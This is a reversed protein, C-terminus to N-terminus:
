DEYFDLLSDFVKGASKGLPCYSSVDLALILERVLKEDFYGSEIMEHVRFIGERCPTCKDCNGYMLFEAISKMKRKVDFNEKRYIKVSALRRISTDMKKSNLFVGGAGGGVQVLFDFDPFNDTKKLIEKITLNEKLKFVGSNEVQGSICYFKDNQFNNNKIEAIAYFTEINHVLTPKNWLGRETPFPPKIKPEARNKEISNIAATEEGAVYRDEKTKIKLSEGETLKLIKREFLNKYEKKLYFFGENIELSEMTVNIGEIAKELNNKLIYKDKFVGPESEAVNCILYKFGNENKASKWKEWVPFNSGSRGILGAKKIKELLM